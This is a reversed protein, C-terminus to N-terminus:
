DESTSVIYKLFCSYVFTCSMEDVIAVKLRFFFFVFRRIIPNGSSNEIGFLRLKLDMCIRHGHLTNLKSTVAELIEELVFAVTQEVEEVIIKWRNEYSM